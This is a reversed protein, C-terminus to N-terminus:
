NGDNGAAFVALFDDTEYVYKDVISCYLDYWYGGGWSNSHIRAGAHYAPKFIKTMNWPVDLEGQEKEGIDFFAIKAESAMGNYQGLGESNDLDNGAITGSTHSGHGNSWDGESGSSTYAVYQIIKRYSADFHPNREFEDRSVRPVKGKPDRFFCSNEDVGSDSIGVVVGAGKLNAVTFIEDHDVNGSKEATQVTCRAFDNQLRIPRSLAIRAVNHSEAITTVLMGLCVSALSEMHNHEQQNQLLQSIKIVVHRDEFTIANRLNNWGCLNTLQTESSLEDASRQLTTWM